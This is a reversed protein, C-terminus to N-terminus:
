RPKMRRQVDVLKKYVDEYREDSRDDLLEQLELLCRNANDWDRLRIAQNAQFIGSEYREDLMRKCDAQLAITDNYYTPKPELTQLLIDLRKCERLAKSLNARRVEREDFLKRANLWADQADALLKERSQTISELGLENLAFTELRERIRQFTEPESRNLVRVRHTRNGLTISLDRRYHSEPAVGEYSAQLGFFESDSATKRLEDLQDPALKREGQGQRNNALDDFRVCLVGDQLTLEYRFINSPTADVKEYRLEFVDRDKVPPVSAKSFLRSQFLVAAAAAVVMVVAVTYLSKRMRRSTESPATDPRPRAIARAAGGGSGLGLDISPAAPPVASPSSVPPTPPLPTSGAAVGEIVDCVVKLVSEGVMIRDGAFLRVDSVPKENVLTENTSALDAVCLDRQDKYYFRCQFRSISPDNLTVDNGSARGLRIGSPPVRLERGRDPGSEVLLHINKESM